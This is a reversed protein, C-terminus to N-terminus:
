IGTQDFLRIGQFSADQMMIGGRDLRLTQNELRCGSVRAMFVDTIPDFIDISFPVKTVVEATSGRPAVGLDALSEEIIRVSGCQVSVSRGTPVIEQSDIDGLVDVRQLSTNETMSVNTAWGFYDTGNITLRARAGSIANRAM